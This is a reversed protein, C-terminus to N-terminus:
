IYICSKLTLDIAKFLDRQTEKNYVGLVIRDKLVSDVCNLCCNCTKILRRADGLFQASLENEAQARKNFLFREYTINVEGVASAEFKSIIDDVTREEETSTFTFGNNIRLTGDDLCHLFLAIQVPGPIASPCSLVAYSIWRQKFLKWSM